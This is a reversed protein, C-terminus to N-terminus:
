AERGLARLTGAYVGSQAAELQARLPTRADDPLEGALAWRTLAAAVQRDPRALLLQRLIQLGRVTERGSLFAHAAELRVAKRQDPGAAADAAESFAREAEAWSGDVALARAFWVTRAPDLPHRRVQARLVQIIPALWGERGAEELAQRTAAELRESEVRSRDGPALLRALTAGFAQLKGQAGAARLRDKAASRAAARSRRREVAAVLVRSTDDANKELRAIVEDVFSAPAEPLAGWAADAVPAEPSTVLSRLVGAVREARDPDEGAVLEELLETASRRGLVGLVLAREALRRRLRPSAELADALRDFARRSGGNVAAVLM